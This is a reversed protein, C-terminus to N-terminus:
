LFGLSGKFSGKLPIWEGWERSLVLSDNSSGQLAVLGEPRWRWSIIYYLMSLVSYLIVVKFLTCYVRYYIYIIHYSIIYM